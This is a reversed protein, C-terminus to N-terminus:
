KEKRKQNVISGAELEDLLKMLSPKRRHTARIEMMVKSWDAIRGLNEFTKRAKRLLQIASPYNRTTEMEHEALDLYFRFAREPHSNIIADAVNERGIGKGQVRTKPNQKSFEDFWHVVDNPRNESIAWECLVDFRPCMEQNNPQFVFFPIPWVNCDKETPKVNELCKQVAAPFKGTQLFIELSCRVASEVKMKEATLLLALIKKNTPYEFIEAAEISAKTAWDQKKDAIKKLYDPWPDCRTAGYRIEEFKIQRQESAIKEAEDLFGFEILRDVLTQHEGISVSETRLLNTADEQRHAKDLTEVITQL